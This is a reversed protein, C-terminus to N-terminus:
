ELAKAITLLSEGVAQAQKITLYAYRPRDMGISLQVPPLEPHSHDQIWVTDADQNPEHPPSKVVFKYDM